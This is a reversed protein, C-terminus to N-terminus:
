KSCNSIVELYQAIMVEYDYQRSYRKFANESLEERLSQNEFFTILQKKLQEPNRVEFFLAENESVTDKIGTVKSALIPKRNYMAELLSVSTGEYDSAIVYYDLCAMLDKVEEKPVFGVFRTRDAIGLEIALKKLNEVEDGTGAFVAVPNYRKREEETMIGIAKLLTDPNKMKKITGVMGILTGEAPLNYRSLLEARTRTSKEFPVLPPIVKCDIGYKADYNRKIDESVAINAKADNFFKRYIEINENDPVKGHHIITMYPIKLLSLSQGYLKWTVAHAASFSLIVMDPKHRLANFAFRIPALYKIPKISRMRSFRGYGHDLPAAAAYSVEIRKALERVFYYNFVEMGGVKLPYIGDRIEFHIHPM